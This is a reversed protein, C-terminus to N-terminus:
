SRAELRAAAEAEKQAKIWKEYASWEMWGEDTFFGWTRSRRGCLILTKTGPELDCIRHAQDTSMKHWSWRKWTRYYRNLRLDVHPVPHIVETYGGRLVISTFNWPHDHPDRDGDPEFIDHLYVGFWPTQVIRLRALYVLGDHCPITMRKMLAWRPSRQGTVQEGEKPQDNEKTEM